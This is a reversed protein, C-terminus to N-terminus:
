FVRERCSARGIEHRQYQMYANSHRVLRHERKMREEEAEWKIIRYAHERARSRRRIEEADEKEQYYLAPKVTKEHHWIKLALISMAVKGENRKRTINERWTRRKCTTKSSVQVKELRKNLTTLDANSQREDDGIEEEGYIETDDIALRERATVWREREDRKEEKAVPSDGDEERRQPWLVAGSKRGEDEHFADYASHEDEDYM